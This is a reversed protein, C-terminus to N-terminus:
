QCMIEMYDICCDIFACYFFMIRNGIANAKELTGIKKKELCISALKM